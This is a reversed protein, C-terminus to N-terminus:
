KVKLEHFIGIIQAMKLGLEFQQTTEAELIVKDEENDKVDYETLVGISSLWQYIDIALEM